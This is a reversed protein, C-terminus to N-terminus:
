KFPPRPLPVQLRLTLRAARFAAVNINKMGIVCGIRAQKMVPLWWRDLSCARCRQVLRERAPHHRPHRVDEGGVQPQPTSAIWCSAERATMLTRM